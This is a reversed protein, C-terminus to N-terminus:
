EFLEFVVVTTPEAARNIVLRDSGPRVHVGVGATELTYPEGDSDMYELVVVGPAYVVRLPAPGLEFGVDPELNLERVRASASEFLTRGAPAPEVRSPEAFEPLPVETRAVILGEMPTEGVNSFGHSGPELPVVQGPELEFVLSEGADGVSLTGSTVAYYLRDGGEHPPVSEAPALALRTVAVYEDAHIIETHEPAAAASDPVGPEAPMLNSLDKVLGEEAPDRQGCGFNAALACAATITVVSRLTPCLM